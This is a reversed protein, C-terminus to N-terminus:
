LKVKPVPKEERKEDAHLKAMFDAAATNAAEATKFKGDEVKKALALTGATLKRSTEINAAVDEEEEDQMLGAVSIKWVGDVKIMPVSNEDDDKWKLQAKDRDVEESADAIDIHTKGDLEHIIDQAADQGFKDVVASELKALAVDAEAMSRAMKEQREGVAHYLKLEQDVGQHQLVRDAYLMAKKPSSMEAEVSQTTAPADAFAAICFLLATTFPLFRQM